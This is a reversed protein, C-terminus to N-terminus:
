MLCVPPLYLYSFLVAIEIFTTPDCGTEAFVYRRFTIHSTAFNTNTYRNDSAPLPIQIKWEDTRRVCAM